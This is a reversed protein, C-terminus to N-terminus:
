KPQLYLKRLLTSYIFPTQKKNNFEQRSSNSEYRVAVVQNVKTLMTLVDETKNNALLVKGLVQIFWSGQVTNRWSYYGAVTSHALLFDAHMPTRYSAFSDTSTRSTTPGLTTGPDMNNGQCAQIFIMKPKGALSPCHDATFNQWIKDVSYSGDYGYIIGENGHSLIVLSFTDCDSLDEMSVKELTKYIDKVTLNTYIRVEFQLKTFTELM